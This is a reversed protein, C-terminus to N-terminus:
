QSIKGILNLDFPKRSLATLYPDHFIRQNGSEDLDHVDVGTIPLQDENLYSM